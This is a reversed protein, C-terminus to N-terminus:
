MYDIVEVTRFWPLRCLPSPVHSCPIPRPPGAAGEDKKSLDKRFFCVFWGKMGREGQRSGEGRRKGKGALKEFSDDIRTSEM